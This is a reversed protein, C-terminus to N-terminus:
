RLASRFALVLVEPATTLVGTNNAITFSSGNLNRVLGSNNTINSSLSANEIITGSNTLTGIVADTIRANAVVNILAGCGTNTFTAQNYLGYNGVTTITGINIKGSNTFNGIQNYLGIESTWDITIIGGTNNNVTGGQNWLGYEGAYASRGIILQGENTVTGSNYFATFARNVSRSSNISLSGGATISLSAGSNVIVSRAVATTSIVPQNIPAPPIVVHDSAVPVNAPYWNSATNWNTSTSGTWTFANVVTLSTTAWGPPRDNNVVTLTYTQPLSSISAILEQSFATNSSTSTTTSSGNSLTYSYSGSVNGVTATFLVPQGVVVPNPSATFGIITPTDLVNVVVSTVSSCSGLTGTVSYTGAVSVSIATTSQGSSWNYSTAGSATLNTSQGQNITLSPSASVSVGASGPATTLVGTNNTVTFNGGGLNRVLGSSNTIFNSLSTNEIITGSNTFTGDIQDAIRAVVNILAGCGTNNFTGLNLLGDSITSNAGITIQAFNTFSGGTRSYLGIGYARDIRIIGGANNIFSTANSLGFMGVAAKAGIIIQSANIFSGVYFLGEDTAGDITIIGGTTNSFTGNNYIGYERYSSNSIILQGGSTITGSNSVADWSSFVTRAGNVTLSGATTISLSAGRQVEMSRAVATTSLVPQNIPTSPIVVDLGAMPVGGSWNGPINWGTSAGGTWTTTQAVLEATSGLFTILLLWCHFIPQFITRWLGTTARNLLREHRASSLYEM